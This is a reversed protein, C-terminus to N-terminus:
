RVMLIDDNETRPSQFAHLITASCMRKLFVFRCRTDLNFNVYELCRRGALLSDLWRGTGTRILGEPGRLKGVLCRRRRVLERGDIEELGM